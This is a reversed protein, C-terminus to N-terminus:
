ITQFCTKLCMTPWYCTKVFVGWDVQPWGELCGVLHNGPLLPGDLTSDYFNVPNDFKKFIVSKHAVWPLIMLDHYFIDM